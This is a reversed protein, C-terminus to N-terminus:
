LSGLTLLIRDYGAAINGFRIRCYEPSPKNSEYRDMTSKAIEYVLGIAERTERKKYSAYEKLVLAKREAEIANGKSAAPDKCARVALSAHIKADLAANFEYNDQVLETSCSSLLLALVLVRIM